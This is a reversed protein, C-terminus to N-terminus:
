KKKSGTVPAKNIAKLLAHKGSEKHNTCGQMATYTNLPAFVKEQQCLLYLDERAQDGLQHSQRIETLPPQTRTVHSSGM